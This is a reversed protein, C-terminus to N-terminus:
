RRLCSPPLIAMPAPMVPTCFTNLPMKLRSCSNWGSPDWNSWSSASSSVKTMPLKVVIQEHLDVLEEGERIMGEYDVANVEASVDGDVISCIEIYHKLINNKGTIGEKAMLSPNTTVGDLVGLSKAAKIENLNATDIIDNFHYPLDAIKKKRLNFELKKLSTSKASRPGFNNILMLDLTKNCLQEERYIPWESNILRDNFEKLKFCSVGTMKLMETLIQMDYGLSNYGVFYTDQEEKLYAKLEKIQNTKVTDDHEWLTFTKYEKIYPDYFVAIFLNPYLELDFLVLKM